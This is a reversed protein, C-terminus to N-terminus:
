LKAREKQGRGSLQVEPVEMWGPVPFLKPGLIKKQIKGTPGKPLESDVVRLLTPLKYGPLKKRLDARLQDITLTAGLGGSRAQHPDLLIAAAVRQGFEEDEVGVVTAEAIYSLELIEREVELASIKYGGSKIIDVSARGVIFYYRGERRAIDGTKFYGDSDHAARTAEHDYLYKSFMWPTKVLLEGHDGESLKLDVGPIATGVSGVPLHPDLEAGIKICGPFESAGYRALIPRERLSTWFNQVSDVLASSGCLLARIQNAGTVYEQKEIAPLSAIHNEFYWKMRMYITPVGSFVTIGGQKWRNWAWAPDFSDTQFEICAGYNLFPFFSTGLGTTHHVPSVHLIVDSPVIDYGDGIATATEYTYSRRMVAGKSKGTTGSTFIVVGPSNGDLTKTSSITLDYPSIYAEKSLHPLVEFCQINVGQHNVYDKVSHALKGAASSHIIAVQRAKQVFYAAEEVPNKPTMPVAAAGLSHVALIAVAFEYGGAALVGIYVEEERDLRELVTSGLSSELFGRYSLVDVLLDGYSKELKLVNDRIALRNRRAHRLLKAFLPSNPLVYRGVHPPVFRTRDENVELASLRSTTSM